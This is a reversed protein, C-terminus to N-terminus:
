SVMDIRRPPSIRGSSTSGSSAGATIKPAPATCAASSPNLLPASRNKAANATAVVSSDGNAAAAATRSLRAPQPSARHGAHKVIGGTRGLSAGHKGEGVWLAEHIRTRHEQRPERRQGRQRQARAHYQAEKRRRVVLLAIGDLEHEQM